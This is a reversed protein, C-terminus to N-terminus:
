NTNIIARGLVEVIQPVVANGLARLRDMRRPIGDDMGVTRPQTEWSRGADALLRSAEDNVARMSESDGHSDALYYSRDRRHGRYLLRFNWRSALYGCGELSSRIDEAALVNEAIVWRPRVSRIVRELEPFMNEHTNNGHAARSYTQCPWGGCVVDVSGAYETGDLTKIDEHIPVGPWHKALVQRCFPDIECFAVTKMGARELGLSFGGIGSFLDLVRM